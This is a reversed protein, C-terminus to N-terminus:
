TSKKLKELYEAMNNKPRTKFHTKNLLLNENYYNYVYHKTREITPAVGDVEFILRSICDNIFGITSKDGDTTSIEVSELEQIICKEVSANLLRDHGLQLLLNDIFVKKFDALDKKLVDFLVFSYYTEKHVFVICKRRELTFLHGNWNNLSLSPYRTKVGMLKGLKASCFITVM